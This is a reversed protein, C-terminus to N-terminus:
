HLLEHEFRVENYHNLYVILFTNFLILLYQAILNITPMVM